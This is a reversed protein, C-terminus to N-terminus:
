NVGTIKISTDSPSILGWLSVEVSTGLIINLAIIASVAICVRNVGTEWPGGTAFFPTRPVFRIKYGPFLHIGSPNISDLFLHSAYGLIFGVALLRIIIWDTSSTGHQYHNGLLVLAYLLLLLGGSFFLSHTQWSRHKPRTTHLLRHVVWNVPSKQATSEWHHDLDPITSAWQSVPYMVGLQLLPHIDPLLWGKHRMVEFGALMFVVGGSRHTKGMM